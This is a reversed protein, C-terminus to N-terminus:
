IHDPSGIVMGEGQSGESALRNGPRRWIGKSKGGRVRGHKETERGPKGEEGQDTFTPPSVLETRLGKTDKSLRQVVRGEERAGAAIQSSM